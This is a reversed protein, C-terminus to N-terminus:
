AGSSLGLPHLQGVMVENLVNPTLVKIVEWMLFLTITFALMEFMGLMRKRGAGGQQEKNRAPM